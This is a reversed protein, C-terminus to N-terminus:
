DPRSLTAPREIGALRYGSREGLDYLHIRLPGAAYGNTIDVVLYREPANAPLSAPFAAHTINLCVQPTAASRFRPKEAPELAAGRYLYARFSLSENPVVGTFRALDVGCVGRQDANVRGIPSLKGFYRRLIARRRSVLTETLYRDSLADYKGVRVAAAVLEDSFYALIRAMWAGDQETMRMFAPNPYEGRWAEPEFDRASFYGFIGGSLRAMEWPRRQLGLTLFDEAVYSGDFIYSSGLRRSIGDV